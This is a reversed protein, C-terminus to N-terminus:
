TTQLQTSVLSGIGPAPADTSMDNGPVEHCVYRTLPCRELAFRPLSVTRLVALEDELEPRLLFHQVVADDSGADQREDDVDHRPDGQILVGVDPREGRVHRNM